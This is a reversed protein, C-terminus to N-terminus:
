LGAWQARFADVKDIAAGYAARRSEIEDNLWMVHEYAPDFEPSHVLAGLALSAAGYDRRAKDLAAGANDRALELAFLQAGMPQFDYLRAWITNLHRGRSDRLTLYCELTQAGDAGVQFWFRGARDFAKRYQHPLADRIASLDPTVLGAGEGEGLTVSHGTIGIAPIAKVTPRGFGSIKRSASIEYLWTM